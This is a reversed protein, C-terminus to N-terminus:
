LNVKYINSKDCFTRPRGDGLGIVNFPYEENEPLITKGDKGRYVGFGDMKVNMYEMGYEPHSLSLCFIDGAKIEGFTTKLLKAKM